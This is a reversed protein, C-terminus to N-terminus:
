LPRKMRALDPTRNGADGGHERAVDGNARPAAYSSGLQLLTRAQAVTAPERQQARAIAAAREVLPGNGQALIGKDLYINDELGVRVFGGLACGLEVMAFQHRGIGAVSWTHPVHVLSEVQSVMFRLVEPRAGAGGPVGLVFQLHVPAEIRGERLLRLVTDLHGIEYLELEAPIREARMREAFACIMPYPNVFVDDGFNLSGCNLTAMDPGCLLPQLREQATMGVAGGTSTQIIVDVEARIADIAHQFLTASQSPTGDPNRVHLHVVSAGSDVARRAERAIEEPTIPLYPTQARTVEAGVLAATIIVPASSM